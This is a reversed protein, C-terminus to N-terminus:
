INIPLEYVLHEEVQNFVALLLDLLLLAGDAIIIALLLGLAGLV